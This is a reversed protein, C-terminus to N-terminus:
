PLLSVAPLQTSVEVKKKLGMPKNSATIFYTQHKPTDGFLEISLAVKANASPLAYRGMVTIQEVENKNAHHNHHATVPTLLLGDIILKNTQEAQKTLDTRTTPASLYVKEKVSASIHDRHLNFEIMSVEGNGDKDIGNFASVPMSLLFFAGDKVFNVTGHQAVMAHSFSFQSFLLLALSLLLKISYKM